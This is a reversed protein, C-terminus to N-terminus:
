LTKYSRISRSITRITPFLKKYSVSSMQMKLMTTLLIKTFAKFIVPVATESSIKVVTDQQSITFKMKFSAKRSNSREIKKSSMHTGLSMSLVKRNAKSFAQNKM